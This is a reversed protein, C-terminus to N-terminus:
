FVYLFLIFQFVAGSFCRFFSFNLYLLGVSEICEDSKVWFVTLIHHSFKPVHNGKAQRRSEDKQINIRGPQHIPCVLFFVRSLSLRSFVPTTSPLSSKYGDKPHYLSLYLHDFNCTRHNAM